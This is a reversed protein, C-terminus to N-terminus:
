EVPQARVGVHTAVPRMGGLRLGWPAPQTHRALYFTTSGGGDLVIGDRAGRDALIQAAAARTVDEFSAMWFLMEEQNIAVMTYRNTETSRQVRGHVAGDRLERVLGGIGWVARDLVEPRVPREDTLHPVQDDDFWLLWSSPNVHSVIGNSVATHHGRATSYPWYGIPPPEFLTGNVAVALDHQWAMQWTYRLRYQQGRRLAHADMPTVFVEVGPATLDVRAIHAMGRGPYGAAEVDLATYYVGAFVETEPYPATISIRWTILGALVTFVVALVVGRAVLPSRAADRGASSSCM